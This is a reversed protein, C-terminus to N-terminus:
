AEPFHVACLYMPFGGSISESLMHYCDLWVQRFFNEKFYLSEMDPVHGAGHFLLSPGPSHTWPKVLYCWRPKKPFWSSLVRFLNYLRKSFYSHFRVQPVSTHRESLLSEFHFTVSMIKYCATMQWCDFGVEKRLLFERWWISSYSEHWLREYFKPNSHSFAWLM